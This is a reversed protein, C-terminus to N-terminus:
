SIQANLNDSAEVENRAIQSSHDVVAKARVGNNSLIGIANENEIDREEVDVNKNEEESSDDDSSVDVELPPM